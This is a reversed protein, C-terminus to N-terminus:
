YGITKSREVQNKSSALPAPPPGRGGLSNLRLYPSCVDSCGICYIEAHAHVPLVPSADLRPKSAHRLLDNLKLLPSSHQTVKQRQRERYRHQRAAHKHRGKRSKQYKNSSRKLSAERSEM